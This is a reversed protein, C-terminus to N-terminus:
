YEGTNNRRTAFFPKNLYFKAVEQIKKTEIDIKYVIAGRGSKIIEKAFKIAQYKSFISYTYNYKCDVVIYNTKKM